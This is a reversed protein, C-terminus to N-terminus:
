KYRNLKISAKHIRSFSVHRCIEPWNSDLNLWLYTISSPHDGCRILIIQHFKLRLFVTTTEHFKQRKWYNHNRTTAIVDFSWYNSHRISSFFKSIIVWSKSTVTLLFIMACSKGWAVEDSSRITFLCISALKSFWSFWFHCWLGNFLKKSLYIHLHFYQFIHKHTECIHCLIPDSQHLFDSIQDPLNESRVSFQFLRICLIQYNIQYIRLHLLISVSSHVFDSLQDPYIQSHSCFYSDFSSCCGIEPKQRRWWWAYDDLTTTYFPLTIDGCRFRM